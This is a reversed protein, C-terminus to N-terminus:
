EPRLDSAPFLSTGIHVTPSPLTVAERLFRISFQRDTDRDFRRLKHFGAGIVIMNGSSHEFEVLSQFLGILVDSGWDNLPPDGLGPRSKSQEQILKPRLGGCRRWPSAPASMRAFYLLVSELM